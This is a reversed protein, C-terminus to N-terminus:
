RLRGAERIRELLRYIGSSPNSNQTGNAEHRADMSKARVVADPYGALLDDFRVHKQYGPIFTRLRRALVRRDIHSAHDEFHWLLWIEICPNSIAVRINHDRAQQLADQLKPHEDVDFVCWVEDFELNADRATRAAREAVSRLEQAREVLTKPFGGGGCVEIKVLRNVFHRRFRELYEPETVEGECVILLFPLPDRSPGRRDLSRGINRRKM